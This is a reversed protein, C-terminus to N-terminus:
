KKKCMSITSFFYISKDSFSFRVFVCALLISFFVIWKPSFLFYPLISTSRNNHVSQKKNKHFHTIFTKFIESQIMVKAADMVIVLGPWYVYLNQDGNYIIFIEISSSIRPSSLKITSLSQRLISARILVRNGDNNQIFPILNPRLAFTQEPRSSVMKMCHPFILYFNNSDTQISTLCKNRQFKSLIDGILDRSLRTIGM